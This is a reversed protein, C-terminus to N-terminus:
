RRCVVSPAKPEPASFIRTNIELVSIPLNHQKLILATITSSFKEYKKLCIKNIDCVFINYLCQVYLKFVTHIVIVLFSFEPTNQWSNM